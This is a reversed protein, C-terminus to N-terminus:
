IGNLERIREERWTQYDDGLITSNALSNASLRSSHSDHAKFSDGYRVPSLSFCDDFTRGGNNEKETELVLAPKKNASGHRINSLCDGRLPLLRSCTSYITSSGRMDSPVDNYSSPDPPLPSHLPLLQSTQPKNSSTSSSSFQRPSSHLDLNEQSLISPSKFSNSSDSNSTYIATGAKLGVSLDRSTLRPIGSSGLSNVCRSVVSKQHEAKLPSLAQKLSSYKTVKQPSQRKLPSPARSSIRSKSPSVSRTSEKRPRIRSLKNAGQDKVEAEIMLVEEFLDIEGVKFPKGENAILGNNYLLIEKKISSLARPMNKQVKKRIREENLLTQCSNKELLRKSNKSSEVLFRQSEMLEKLEQYLDLIRQKSQYEEKLSDLEKEHDTLIQEKDETSFALDLDFHKFEQRRVTTHFLLLHLKEIEKRASAIFEEIFERRKEQLRRLELKFNYISEETLTDNELLFNEVADKAENLTEWLRVCKLKLGQLQQEKSTKIAQLTSVLKSIFNIHQDKLGLEHPNELIFNLTEVEIQGERSIFQQIESSSLAPEKLITIVSNKELSLAKALDLCLILKERILAVRSRIEEETSEVAKRMQAMVENDFKSIKLERITRVICYNIDRLKSMEEEFSLCHGSYTQADDESLHRKSPSSIIFSFENSKSEARTTQSLCDLLKLGGITNEFEKILKSHTHAETKDPISCLFKDNSDPTWNEIIVDINEWFSVNLDNFRRFVSIFTKLAELFILNLRSKTQVLSYNPEIQRKSLGSNNFSDVLLLASIALHASKPQSVLSQSEHGKHWKLMEADIDQQLQPDDRFVLWRDALSLVKQGRDESLISFILHIQQRLWDCENQIGVKERQLNQTITSLTDYVTEFVDNKKRSIEPQQYGIECYVAKIKELTEKFKSAVLDLQEEMDIPNRKVDMLSDDHSKTPAIENSRPPTHLESGTCNTSYLLDM